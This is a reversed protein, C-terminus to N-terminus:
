RLGVQVKYPPRTPEQPPNKALEDLTWQIARELQPDHGAVVDSPANEVEIDPDVGHNEVVWKDDKWFGADPMTISGGDVLPLNHSIGVLGGWTRMGIVPGIGLLRFYLPFLDGGSGAYQNILICKPGDISTAPSREDAGDRRAIRAITQRRLRDVFFEPIFGGGNYREDVIIGQKDVQPFYQKSFEQIGLTATNPVHIYAIRGGTAKAVKERNGDVWATYRLTAESGIPKVTYTRPKPDDPSSGVTIRTQKGTTGVFAAFLNEPSRVPRDNVALLYDGEKV